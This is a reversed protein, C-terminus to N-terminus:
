ESIFRTFSAVEERATRYNNVPDATDEYGLAMGCVLIDSEERGLFPKVIWPYEGLSAQPCTALGHDMATLMISQIFMGFDLYSGTEMIGDMFFLLMVPADFVRYNAIWQSKRREYDEREIGLAGYLAMGCAIRRAKFPDKWNVPYYHYDMKGKEGEEFAATIKAGLEDKKDDTLVDVQWPQTNSGSAAWRATNLISEITSREVDRDQFKRVSKRNEIAESVNM